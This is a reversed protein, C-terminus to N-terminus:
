FDNRRRQLDTTEIDKLAEERAALAVYAWGLAEAIKVATPKKM